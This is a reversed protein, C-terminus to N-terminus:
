ELTMPLEDFLPADVFESKTVHWCTKEIKKLNKIVQFLVGMDTNSIVMAAGLQSAVDELGKVGISKELPVHVNGTLQIAFCSVAFWIDSDSKVIIRSGKPFGFSGIYSAFGQVEQWLEGYTIQKENAIVAVREPREEAYKALASVISDM